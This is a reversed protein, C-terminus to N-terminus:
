KRELIYDYRTTKFIKGEEVIYHPYYEAKFGIKACLDLFENLNYYIPVVGKVVVNTKIFKNKLTKLIIRLTKLFGHFMLNHRLKNVRDKFGHRYYDDESAVEGIYAVGDKKLTRKIELLTKTVNDKSELYHIVSNMVIKDFSKDKYPIKTSEGVLFEVNKNEKFIINLKSIVEAIPDIGVGKKLKGQEILKRFLIGGGPGIDLVIDKSTFNVKKIIGNIIFDTIEKSRGGLDYDNKAYKAFLEWEKRFSDAYVDKM